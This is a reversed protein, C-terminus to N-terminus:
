ISVHTQAWPQTHKHLTCAKYMHASIHACAHRHACFIHVHARIQTHVHTKCMHGPGGVWVGKHACRCCAHTYVHTCVHVHYGRCRGKRAPLGASGSLVPTHSQTSPARARLWGRGQGRAYRPPWLEAHDGPLPDAGGGEGPRGVLLPCRAVAEPAAGGLGPGRLVGPGAPRTGVAAAADPGGAPVAPVRAPAPCRSWPRPRCQGVGGDGPVSSDGVGGRGDRGVGRPCLMDGFINKFCAVLHEHLNETFGEFNRCALIVVERPHQELWEYIETLTDQTVSWKLVVPQTVCPLAASLVHLLPSQAQSVPSRRNLSYTM